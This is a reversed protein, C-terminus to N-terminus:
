NEQTTDPRIYVFVGPILSHILYMMNPALKNEEEKQEEVWRREMEGREKGCEERQTWKKMM